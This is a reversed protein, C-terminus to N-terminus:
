RVDMPSLTVTGRQDIYLQLPPSSDAAPWRLTFDTFEGLADVGIQPRPAQSDQARAALVARRGDITLEVRREGVWRTPKLPPTENVRWERREPDYVLFQYGAQDLLVGYERGELEARDRLYDLMARLREADREHGRDVGTVGLSLLAGAIMVSVITLVVLIEILTFGSRRM